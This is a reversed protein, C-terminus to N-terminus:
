QRLESFKKMVAGLWSEAYFIMPEKDPFEYKMRWGYYLVAAVCIIIVYGRWVKRGNELFYKCFFFLLVGFLVPFLMAHMQWAGAFDGRLFLLFARTIGCAPCPIGLALRVWCTGGFVRETVGLLVTCLLLGIFIQKGDRLLEKKSPKRFKLKGSM